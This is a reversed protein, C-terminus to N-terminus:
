EVGYVVKKIFEVCGEIIAENSNSDSGETVGLYLELINIEKNPQNRCEYLPWQSKAIYGSALSTTMITFNQMANRSSPSGVSKWDGMYAKFMDVFRMFNNMPSGSLRKSRAAFLVDDKKRIFYILRDKNTTVKEEFHDPKSAATCWNSGRKSVGDLLSVRNEGFYKRSAEWTKPAYATYEPTDWLM